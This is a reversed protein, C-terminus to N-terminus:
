RIAPLIYRKFIEFAPRYSIYNGGTFVICMDLEPIIMIYQGGWGAAYYMDMKKSNKVFSHTWWMYSYGRMGWHDDWNNMWINNPSPQSCTNVWEESIIRKGNWVGKKLFTVGIKMMDRPKIIVSGAAEVIESPFRSWFFPSIDLPGFLYKGSFEEIDMGSATKLIEGLLINCGGCYKFNRGPTNVLEKSLYYEVQNDSFYMRIVDNEPNGYPLDMENWQLGSSMHLLDEITINKKGGKRFQQYDPLYDFISQKISKIFGKAVAIGICTSTINKSVSMIRHVMNKDWDVLDSHHNEADYRYRHGRFYEDLVLKGHRYILMSHVEQYYGSKISDVAQEILAVDINANQLSGVTLGDNIQEPIEYFYQAFISGQTILFILLLYTIIQKKM